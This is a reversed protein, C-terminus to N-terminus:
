LVQLNPRSQIEGLYHSRHRRGEKREIERIVVKVIDKIPGGVGLRQANSNASHIVLGAPDFVLYENKYKQMLSDPVYLQIKTQKYSDPMYRLYYGDEHQYWQDRKLEPRHIVSPERLVGLNEVAEYSRIGADLVKIFDNQGANPIVRSATRVAGMVGGNLEFLQKPTLLQMATSRVSANLKSFDSRSVISWLLLQINKQDLDTRQSSNELVSLIIDKRPGYLEGPYYADRSSPDPTGPQLCYTKFDTEYLGSSLVFAGYSTRPLDTLQKFSTDVQLEVPTYEEVANSPNNVQHKSSSACSGFLLVVLFTKLLSKMM